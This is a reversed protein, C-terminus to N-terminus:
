DCHNFSKPQGDWDRLYMNELTHNKSQAISGKYYGDRKRIMSPKDFTIRSPDPVCTGSLYGTQNEVAAIPVIWVSRKTERVVKYFDVLTM